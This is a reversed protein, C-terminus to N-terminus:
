PKRASARFLFRGFFPRNRAVVRYAPEVLWLFPPHALVRALRGWGAHELIHLVARGAKLITGDRQVVHVAQKCAAYLAPTMPPSPAEQYPVAIFWAGEDRAKLWAVARRCFGCAGDFLILHQQSLSLGLSAGPVIM